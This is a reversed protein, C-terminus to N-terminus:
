HGSRIGDIVIHFLIYSISLYFVLNVTNNELAKALDQAGLDGINNCRLDIMTLTQIAYYLYFLSIVSYVNKKVKNHLLLDAFHHAIHDDGNQICYLSTLM